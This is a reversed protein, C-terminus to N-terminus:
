NVMREEEDNLDGSVVLDQEDTDSSTSILAIQHLVTEKARNVSILLMKGAFRANRNPCHRKGNIMHSKTNLTQLCRFCLGDHICVSWMAPFPNKRDNKTTVVDIGMPVPFNLTVITPKNVQVWVPTPRPQWYTSISHAQTRSGQDFGNWQFNSCLMHSFWKKRDFYCSGDM